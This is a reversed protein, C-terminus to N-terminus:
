FILHFWSRLNDAAKDPGLGFILNLAALSIWGANFWGLKGM